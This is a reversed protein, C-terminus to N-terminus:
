DAPAIVGQRPTVQVEIRVPLYPVRELGSLWDPWTPWTVIQPSEALPFARELQMRADPVRVARVEAIVEEEDIGAAAYGYGEVYFTFWGPGDQGEAVDGVDFRTEVLRYGYPLNDILARRAIARADDTSVAQGSVLLRM